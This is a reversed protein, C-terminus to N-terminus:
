NVDVDLQQSLGVMYHFKCVCAGDELETFPNCLQCTNDECDLCGAKCNDQPSGVQALTCENEDDDFEYGDECELCTLASSCSLCNEM